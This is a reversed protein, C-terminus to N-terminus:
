ERMTLFTALAYASLAVPLLARMRADNRHDFELVVVGTGDGDKV